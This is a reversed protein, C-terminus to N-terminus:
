GAKKSVLLVRLLSVFRGGRREFLAGGDGDVRMRSLDDPGGGRGAGLPSGVVVAPGLLMVGAAQVANVLYVPREVPHLVRGLVLLLHQAGLLLQLHVDLLLSPVHVHAVM